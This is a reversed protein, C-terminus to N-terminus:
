LIAAIAIMSNLKAYISPLDTIPLPNEGTGIEITFGPRHLKDIFWDKFGGHSALGDQRALTYGSYSALLPAMYYSAKPTNTGYEYFIEEGQSHFAFATKIHFGTCLTVIAKTEPESHPYRGGYQRPSPGFIGNKRETEKCTAFGADYNHNLDIGRANAQWSQTSSAQIKAVSKQLHKASKSGHLAIEVGDPNVMPVFLLGRELLASEFHIEAFEQNLQISRCLDEMFRILLTCTLWEQAHFAGALLNSTKLSGLGAAYIKRGLVSKGIPFIKLFPFEKQLARLKATYSAYDPPASYFSDSM